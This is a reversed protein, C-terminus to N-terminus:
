NNNKYINHFLSNNDIMHVNNQNDFNYSISKNNNEYLYFDNLFIFNNKNEKNNNDNNNNNLMKEYHKIKMNNNIDYNDNYNKIDFLDIEIFGENINYENYGGIIYIIYNNDHKKLINKPFLISQGRIFFNNYNNLKLIKWKENEYNIYNIYEIDNIYKKNEYDYGFFSYILKNNIIIYSSEIHCCNMKPFFKWKKEKIEYIENENTTMGSLCFIYNNNNNLIIFNGKCHSYKPNPLKYICNSNSSYFFFENYYKGTLLFFGNFINLIIDYNHNENQTYISNFNSDNELYKINNYQLNFINFSTIIEKFKKPFLYLITPSKSIDPNINYNNNNNNINNNSNLINKNINNNNLKIIKENLSNSKIIKPKYNILNNLNDLNKNTKKNENNNVNINSPIKKVYYNGLNNNKNSSFNNYFNNEINNDLLILNDSIDFSNFYKGKIFEIDICKEYNFNNKNIKKMEYNKIIEKLKKNEEKLVNIENVFENNKQLKKIQSILFKIDNKMSINENLINNNENGIFYFDNLKEIKFKIKNKKDFPIKNKRSNENVNKYNNSSMTISINNQNSIQNNYTYTKYNKYKYNNNTKLNNDISTLSTTKKLILDNKDSLKINSLQRKINNINEEFRYSFKNIDQNNNNNFSSDNIDKSNTYSTRKNKNLCIKRSPSTSLFSM